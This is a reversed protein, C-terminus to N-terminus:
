IRNFLRKIRSWLSKYYYRESMKRAYKYYKDNTHYNITNHSVNYMKALQHLTFGEARLEKIQEIDWLKLKSM